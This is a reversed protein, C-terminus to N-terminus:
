LMRVQKCLAYVVSDNREQERCDGIIRLLLVGDSADATIFSPHSMKQTVRRKKSMTRRNKKLATDNETAFRFKTSDM